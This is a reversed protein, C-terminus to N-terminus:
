PSYPNVELYGWSRDAFKPDTEITGSQWDSLVSGAGNSNRYRVVMGFLRPETVMGDPLALLPKRIRLELLRLTPRSLLRMNIEDTSFNKLPGNKNYGSSFNTIDFVGEDLIPRGVECQFRVIPQKESAFKHPPIECLYVIVADMMFEGLNNAPRNEFFFISDTVECLFYLYQASVAVIVRLVSKGDVTTCLVNSQKPLVDWFASPLSENQRFNGEQVALLSQVGIINRLFVNVSANPAQIDFENHGYLTRLQQSMGTIDICYYGYPIQPFSATGNKSEPTVTLEREFGLGDSLRILLESPTQTFTTAATIEVSLGSEHLATPQNASCQLGIFAVGVVFGLVPKYKLIGM